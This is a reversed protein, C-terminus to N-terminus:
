IHMIKMLCRKQKRFRLLRFLIVILAIDLIRFLKGFTCMINPIDLMLKPREGKDLILKFEIKKSSHMLAPKSEAIIAGFLIRGKDFIM